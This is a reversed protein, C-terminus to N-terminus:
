EAVELRATLPNLSHLGPQDPAIGLLQLGAQMIRGFVPAAVEGGYYQQGSPDDITVVMVLRPNSVPAFGAFTAVYRDDSYGNKGLKHVTGTKGAIRYLSSAARKGTGQVVVQELMAAMRQATQVSVARVSQVNSENLVLRPVVRVGDNALAGYAVALQLPTVTLGYGYSFTALEIDQWKPRNPLQGAAESPLGIGTVQGLGLQYFTNWIAESGLETAIISAGVNSSKTLVKEVTLRGYNHTDRITHGNLRRYGPATNISTQEEFRGSELAASLTLAKVVSGPEFADVVARNRTDNYNLGARNNPNFSPQNVLALIDGNKVDMIVVSGAAAGHLVVANKLERYALYQLRSDLSLTLTEGPMVPAISEVDRIVNGYLDKLVRKKGDTGELVSDFALELGEQGHDDIDTMGLVHASVEGQPYYRKYEQRGYVGAIKQALVHEAQEPIMHRRLYVFSRDSRVKQALEARPMELLKALKSIDKEDIRRPDAWLSLLPTSIALPEGHRDLVMGRSASLTDVREMRADGQGILFQKDFVQLQVARAAVGVLLSALLLYILMQRWTAHYMWSM